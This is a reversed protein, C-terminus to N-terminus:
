QINLKREKPYKEGKKCHECHDKKKADPFCCCKGHPDDCGDGYHHTQGEPLEKFM